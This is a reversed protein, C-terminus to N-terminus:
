HSRLLEVGANFVTLLDAHDQVAHTDVGRHCRGLTDKSSRIVPDRHLRGQGRDGFLTALNTTISGTPVADIELYVKHLPNNIM